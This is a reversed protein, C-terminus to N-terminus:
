ALSVPIQCRVYDGSRAELAEDVQFAAQISHKRQGFIYDLSECQSTECMLPLTLISLYDWERRIAVSTHLCPNAPWDLLQRRVWNGLEELGSGYASCSSIVTSDSVCLVSTTMASYSSYSSYRV